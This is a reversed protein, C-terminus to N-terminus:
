LPVEEFSGDGAEFSEALLVLDVGLVLLLGGAGGSSGAPEGGSKGRSSAPLVGSRALQAALEDFGAAGDDSSLGFTVCRGGDGVLDAPLREADFELVGLVVLVGDVGLQGRGGQFQGAPFSRRENLFPRARFREGLHVGVLDRGGGLLGGWGEAATVGRGAVQEGLVLRFCGFSVPDRLLVMDVGGRLFPLRALLGSGSLLGQPEARGCQLLVSCRNFRDVTGGGVQGRGDGGLEDRLPGGGTGDGREDGRGRRLAVRQALLDGDRGGLEGGQGRGDTLAFAVDCGAGLAVVLEGALGSVRLPGQFADLRDGGPDSRKRRDCGDATVVEGFTRQVDGLDVLAGVPQQGCEVGVDGSVGGAEVLVAGCLVLVLPDEVREAVPVQKGGAAVDFAAQEDEGFRADGRHGAPAVKGLGGGGVLAGGQDARM